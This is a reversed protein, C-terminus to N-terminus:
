VSKTIKSKKYSPYRSIKHLIVNSQFFFAVFIITDNYTHFLIVYYKPSFKSTTIKSAPGTFNGPSMVQSKLFNIQCDSLYNKRGNTNERLSTDRRRKFYSNYFSETLYFCSAYQKKVAYLSSKQDSSKLTRISALSCHLM